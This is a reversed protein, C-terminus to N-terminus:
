FGALASPQELPTSTIGGGPQPPGITQPLNLFILSPGFQLEAGGRGLQFDGIPGSSSLTSAFLTFPVPGTSRFVQSVPGGLPFGDGFVGGLVAIPAGHINFLSGPGIPEGATFANPDYVSAGKTGLGTSGLGTLGLGTAGLGTTGLLPPGMAAAAPGILGLGPAGGGAPFLPGKWWTPWKM